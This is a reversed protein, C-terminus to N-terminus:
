ARFFLTQWIELTIGDHSKTRLILVYWKLLEAGKIECYKKKWFQATYAIMRDMPVSFVQLSRTMTIQM